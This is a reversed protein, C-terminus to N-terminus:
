LGDGTSTKLGVTTSACSGRTGIGPVDTVAATWESLQETPRGRILGGGSFALEAWGRGPTCWRGTLNVVSPVKDAM